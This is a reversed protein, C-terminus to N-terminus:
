APQVEWAMWEEIIRGDAIRSINLGYLAVPAGDSARTATATLRSAVKDGDVLQDEVRFQPDRFLDRFAAIRERLGEIDRDGWSPHGVYDPHIVGALDLLRGSEWVRVYDRFVNRNDKASVKQGRCLEGAVVANFRADTHGAPRTVSANDYCRSLRTGGLFRGDAHLDTRSLCSGIPM